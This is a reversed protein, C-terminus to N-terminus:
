KKLFQKLMMRKKMKKRLYNTFEDEQLIGDDRAAEIVMEFLERSFDLKILITKCLTEDVDQKHIYENLSGILDSTDQPIYSIKLNSALKIEGTYEHNLGLLIKILTSKGSGTHGILATYSGSPIEINVDFLAAGEFPTGEQYTYSLQKLAIGM